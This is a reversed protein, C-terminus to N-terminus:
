SLTGERSIPSTSTSTAAPEAASPAAASALPRLAALGRSAASKVAGVSIGLQDAVAQESMDAYYRLVVVTRQQPPLHDLLRIIQDRDDSTATPSRREALVAPEPTEDVAAERGFKRWQERHHNVLVARAYALAQGDRVRPWAVYTKVLAAQVLEQAADGNGTLLWATRTLSPSASTMFATFAAEREERRIGFM